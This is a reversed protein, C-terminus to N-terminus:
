FPCATLTADESSASICPLSVTENWLGSFTQVGTIASGPGQRVTAFYSSPNAPNTSLSLEEGNGTEALLRGATYNPKGTEESIILDEFRSTTTITLEQGNTFPASVTFNTEFYRRPQDIVTDAVVQNLTVRTDLGDDDLLNGIYGYQFDTYSLTRSGSARGVIVDVDGHMDVPFDILDIFFNEYSATYGGADRGILSFGGDFYGSDLDCSDFSLFTSSIASSTTEVTLTGDDCSYQTRLFLLINDDVVPETSILELSDLGNGNALNLLIPFWQVHPNNTTVETIGSLLRDVISANSDDFAGPDFAGPNLFAPLSRNGDSDIAVLEYTHPVDIISGFNFSGTGDYFSNGEASGLLEGDRFVDTSVIGDSPNTRNWILEASNAGYVTLTVNQPSAPRLTPTDTDSPTAASPFPGTMTNFDLTVQESTEGTTTKAVVSVLNASGSSLADFFVSSGSTTAIPVGNLFVDYELKRSPTRDWFIEGATVSYVIGRVNGPQDVGSALETVSVFNSRSEVPEAPVMPSYNGSDDFGAILYSGTQEPRYSATGIVTDTYRSDLYIDYGIAQELPNWTIEQGNYAAGSVLPLDQSHVKTASILLLMALFSNLALRNFLPQITM